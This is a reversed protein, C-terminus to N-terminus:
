VAKKEIDAQHNETYENVAERVVQSLRRRTGFAYGELQDYVDADVQTTVQRRAKKPTDTEGKPTNKTTPM